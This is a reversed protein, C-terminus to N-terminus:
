HPKIGVKSSGVLLSGDNKTNGTQHKENGSQNIADKKKFAEFSFLRKNQHKEQHNDETSSSDNSSEDSDQEVKRKAPIQATSASVMSGSSLSSTSAAPRNTMVVDTKEKNEADTASSKVRGSNSVKKGTLTVYHEYTAAGPVSRV